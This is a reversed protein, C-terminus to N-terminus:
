KCDVVFNPISKNNKCVTLILERIYFFISTGKEGRWGPLSDSGLPPCCLLPRILTVPERLPYIRQNTGCGTRGRTSQPEM